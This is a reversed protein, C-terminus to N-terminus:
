ASCSGYRAHNPNGCTQPINNFVFQLTTNLEETSDQSEPLGQVRINNQRGRNDLDEVNKMNHILKADMVKHRQELNLLRELIQDRDEELDGVRNGVLRVESTLSSIQTQVSAELRTLMAAIDDKLSLNNLLEKIDSIRTVSSHDSTTPSYPPTDRPSSLAAMSDEPNVTLAKVRDRFCGKLDGAKKSAGQESPDLTNM